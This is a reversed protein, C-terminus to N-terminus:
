GNLPDVALAIAAVTFVVFGGNYLRVRGYVDGLRGVTVVLVATVILFGMLIWLLYGVNGPALPDLHIGRFIAPLSIIVISSNITAMMVGLTTNSLVVWRYSPHERSFAALRSAM